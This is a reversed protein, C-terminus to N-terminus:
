QPGFQSPANPYPSRWLASTAEILEQAQLELVKRGNSPLGNGDAVFRAYARLGGQVEDPLITILFGM